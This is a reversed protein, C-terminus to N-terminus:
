SEKRRAGIDEPVPDYGTAGYPHCRLIRRGAMWVGRLPGFRRMAEIAYASCTPEFRCRPGLLPSLTWQYVRVLGILVLALGRSLGRAIPGRAIRGGRTEGPGANRAESDHQTLRAAM